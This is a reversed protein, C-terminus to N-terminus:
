GDISYEQEFTWREPPYVAEAFELPQDNGDYVTHRYVLVAVTAGPLGLEARDDETASRAAVQDRAYAATRGTVSEVYAVTGMRIREAALLKPAPEALSGDLWSTSTEVPGSRESYTVRHRKVVLAGEDLGLAAAVHAPAPALEASTIEAYEGPGYIRGLARAQNYRQRARTPARTDRVYTGAGQRSEVLGQTRLAQLAKTATPRAVRWDTALQRESPVETGPRMNGKLIEDRIYNAIQLYKPLVQQIEPV